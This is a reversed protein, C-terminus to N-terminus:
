QACCFHSRVQLKQKLRVLARAAADTTGEAAGNSMSRSMTGKRLGGASGGGRSGGAGGAGGGAGGAGGAGGGDEGDGRERQFSLAKLPSLTWKYLPDHMFVDLITLIAASNARLVKMTEECCRMFVGDCGSFVLDFRNTM